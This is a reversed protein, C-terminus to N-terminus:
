ASRGQQANPSHTRATREPQANPILWSRFAVVTLRRCEEPKAGHTLRTTTRYAHLSVRQQERAYGGVTCLGYRPHRVVPGRKPGFSRTGGYPQVRGGKSAQLRTLQRRHLVTPVVYWLRTCTPAKAGSVSAALVWADVAHRSFDQHHKHRTKTLGRQERFQSTVVGLIRHPVLGRGKILHYLHEKGVQVPSPGTQRIM